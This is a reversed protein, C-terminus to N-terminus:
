CARGHAALAKLFADVDSYSACVVATCGLGRLREIRVAQARRAIAGPRKLEVWGHRAGPLVVVRDPWSSHGVKIAEGGQSVVKACLYTEVSKERM